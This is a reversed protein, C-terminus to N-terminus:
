HPSPMQINDQGNSQAQGQLQEGIAQILPASIRYPADSLAALVANWQQAELTVQFPQTAPVGQQPAMSNIM